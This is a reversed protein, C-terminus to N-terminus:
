PSDEPPPHPRRNWAAIAQAKTEHLFGFARAGCTCQIGYRGRTVGDYGRHIRVSGGCFPCPLVKVALEANEKSM